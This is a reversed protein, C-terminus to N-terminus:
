AEGFEIDDIEQVFDWGVQEDYGPTYYVVFTDRDTGGTLEDRVRDKGGDLRDRGADGFLQDRGSGGYLSDDGDGGYLTDAGGYGYLANDEQNGRITDGYATGHVNECERDRPPRNWIRLDLYGASVTQYGFHDDLDLTIPHGFARFDLTDVGGSESIKDSGLDTNGRFVYTDDGSSGRLVDDGGRGELVNDGPGGRLGNNLRNGRIVDDYHTGRVGSISAASDLVLELRGPSVTQPEVTALDVTVGEPLARFDLV